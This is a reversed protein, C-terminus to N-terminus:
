VDSEFLVFFSLFFTEKLESWLPGFNLYSLHFYLMERCNEKVCLFTGVAKIQSASKLVFNSVYFDSLPDVLPFNWIL